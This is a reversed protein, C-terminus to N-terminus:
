IPAFLRSPVGRFELESTIKRARAESLEVDDIDNDFKSTYGSIYIKGEQIQLKKLEEALEDLQKAALTSDLFLEGNAKFLLYGYDEQSNNDAFSFFAALLVLIICCSKRM